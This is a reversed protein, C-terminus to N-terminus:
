GIKLYYLFSMLLAYIVLSEILSLGIIMPTLAHKASQPNRTIGGVVSAVAWGQALAGGFAAVGLGFLSAVAISKDM